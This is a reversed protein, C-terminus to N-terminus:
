RLLNVVLAIMLDKQSPHSQAILLSLAVLANDNIKEEGNDKNLRGNKQLFMIFMLAGIRKNGDSFPHGKIIYYLLNASKEEVSPLLDVGGFTQYINHFIGDFEQAKERGFLESAEGKQILVQKLRMIEIRAENINFVFSDKSDSQTIALKDEDFRQLFTWTRSYHVIVDLLGKAENLSLSDYSMTNKIMTLTQELQALNQASLKQQNITYGQIFHNKLVQTAWQRFLTARKSNVRYGVSIIADLNYYKVQKKQKLEKIAGHQTTHELISCVVKEDLEGENFINKLHKTIAPRKVNFVNAIQEQNLWLEDNKLQVQISSNDTQYILIEQM